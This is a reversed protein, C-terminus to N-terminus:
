LVIESNNDRTISSGPTQLQSSVHKTVVPLRVAPSGWSLGISGATKKLRSYVHEQRQCSRTQINTFCNNAGVFM